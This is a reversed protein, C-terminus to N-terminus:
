IMNEIHKYYGGLNTMADSGDKKLLWLIINKMADYIKDIYRYYDALSIMANVDGLYIAM